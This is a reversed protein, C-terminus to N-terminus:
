QLPCQSNPVVSQLPGRITPSWKNYPVGQQLPIGSQLPGLSCGPHCCIQALAGNHLAFAVIICLTITMACSILKIFSDAVHLRM